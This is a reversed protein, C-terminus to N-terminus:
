LLAIGHLTFRPLAIGPLATFQRPPMGDGFPPRPVQSGYWVQILQPGQLRCVAIMKIYM